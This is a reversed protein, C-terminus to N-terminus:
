EGSFATAAFFAVAALQILVSFFVARMPRYGYGVLTGFVKGVFRDWRRGTNRHEIDSMAQLLYELDRVAGGNQSVSSRDGGEIDGTDAAVVEHGHQHAALQFVKM